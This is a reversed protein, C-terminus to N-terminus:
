TPTVRKKMFIYVGAILVVGGVVSIVVIVITITPDFGESPISKTITVEESSLNGLTDNAYFTITISGESLMAWATQDITANMTITYNTLGGDLSYWISDLHEDEITVIFAPASVGFEAGSSPSTIVIIPGTADKIINLEAFGINGVLDSAYFTLTNAGDDLADWASQEISGTHGTFTHNHLGGDLTYWMEDLYNDTITVDYNPANIGFIDEANPSNIVVIPSDVDAIPLYDKSGASGSINYPIDVIGDIPSDDPGTWNDWLNGIMTSNWYNESGDDVAHVANKLFLNEYVSNNSCSSDLKIGFNNNKIINGSILNFHCDGDFQIGYDNNEATNELFTNNYSSGPEEGVGSLFIGTDGNNSATNQSITNNDCEDELYIGNKSNNYASNETINNFDCDTDFFIGTQANNIAINDTINNFDSDTGFFIGSNDNNTAYNGSINNFDCDNNLFIGRDNYSCNNEKLIGNTVNDLKIGARDIASNYFTCNKIIFYANSNIIEICNTMALGDRELYEIIYPSGITGIGGGFWSQQEVWTWNHAGVGTATGNIFIPLEKFSGSCTNNEIINGTCRLEFICMGNDILLNESVSNNNSNDQFGIGLNNRNIINNKILNDECRDTLYVGIKLNDNIINGTINNNDANAYHLYIGTDDNKNVTNNIFENQSSHYLEIGYKTNETAINDLLINGDANNYISIGAIGNRSATNNIINNFDSYEIFIGYRENDHIINGTYNNYNCLNSYIGAEFNNYVTNNKIRNNTCQDSITSYWNLYIGWNNNYVTNNIINNQHCKVHLYIGSYLNNYVSNEMITNNECSEHLDIGDENGNATNETINNYDCYYILYIGNQANNNITNGSITNNYCEWRLHIGDQTNNIATNGSVINKYCTAGDQGDLLIGSAGNDNATNGTLNNYDCNYILAIGHMTNNNAFNGSLTNNYCGPEGRLYIGYKINNYVTNGSIINDHCDKLYIGYSNNYVQNDVIQGNTVNNLRIGAFSAITNDKLTCNRVTFHKRSNRITLCDIAPPYIITVNEIIYPYEKTGDGETCWPQARAWSWNGSFSTNTTALADIIIFDITASTRLKDVNPEYDKGFNFNYNLILPFILGIVLLIFLNRKKTTM